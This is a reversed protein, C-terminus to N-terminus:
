QTITCSVPNFRQMWAVWSEADELTAWARTVRRLGGPQDQFNSTGETRGEAKLRDLEALVTNVVNINTELIDVVIITRFQM